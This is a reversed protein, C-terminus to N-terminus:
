REVGAAAAPQRLGVVQDGEVAGGELLERAARRRRVDIESTDALEWKRRTTRWCARACRWYGISPEHAVRSSSRLRLSYACASRM